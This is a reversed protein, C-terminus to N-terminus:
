ANVQRALLPDCQYPLLDADLDVHLASNFVNTALMLGGFATLLVIQPPTFYAALQPYLRNSVANANAALLRGYEIVVQERADLALADPDDGAELLERRMYTTCLQCEREFSIAHTFLTTLREGLFPVVADHLPYWELLAHLAAPAHALTAKMNTVHADSRTVEDLAAQIEPPAEAYVVPDIRAM